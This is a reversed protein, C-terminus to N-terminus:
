LWRKRRFYALMGIIISIMIGWVLPYGLRWRLEPMIEFNMGYIGAVFTIPIFITAIITLVKMIENMRNSVNSLYIDLMGTIVDRFTEVSDMIQVTHDYLDALYPLTTDAFLSSESRQLYSIIDRLPWVAKRLFINERKLRHIRRLSEVNPEGMLEEELTEIKEGLKELVLFYHDVIADIIAYGLYDAGMKRIRGKNQQIRQRILDLVDGEKEQFTIVYNEGLVISVQESELADKEANWTLMKLMVCIYTKYDEAKPRQRTNLIHELTVPHLGFCEGIEAITDVEHLGNVNLWTITPTAKFQACESVEEVERFAAEDYGFVTITTKEARKEGVHVLTGPPLGVKSTGDTILKRM